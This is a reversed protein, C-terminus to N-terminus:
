KTFEDDCRSICQKLLEVLNRPLFTVIVDFGEGLASLDVSEHHDEPAALVVISHVIAQVLVRILSRKVGEPPSFDVFSQGSSAGFLVPM